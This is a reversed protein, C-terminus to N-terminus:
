RRRALLRRVPASAHSRGSIRRPLVVSRARADASCTAAVLVGCCARRSRSGPTLTRGGRHRHLSSDGATRRNRRCRPHDTRPERRRSGRTNREGRRSLPGLRPLRAVHRPNRRQSSDGAGVLKITPSSDRKLWGCYVALAVPLGVSIVVLVQDDLPVTPLTTLAVLMGLCWGGLGLLVAYLSRVAASAKRGFSAQKCLRVAMWLLSLVTLAALGLLVGLIGQRVHRPKPKPQLRGQQPHLPVHRGQRQRPLHQDSPHQSSTRLALLRRRPRPGLARGSPRERPSASARPCLSVAVLGVGRDGSQCRRLLNPRDSSGQARM